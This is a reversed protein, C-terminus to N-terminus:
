GPADQAPAAAESAPAGGPALGSYHEVNKRWRRAKAGSVRSRAQKREIKQELHRLQRTPRHM